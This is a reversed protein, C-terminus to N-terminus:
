YFLPKLQQSSYFSLRIQHTYFLSTRPDHPNFRLSVHDPQKKLHRTYFATTVDSSNKIDTMFFNTRFPLM